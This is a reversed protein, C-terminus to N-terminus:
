LDEQGPIPFKKIFDVVETQMSDIKTKFSLETNLKKLFDDYSAKSDLSEQIEVTLQVGKDILDCVKEFDQTTFGRSTLAPSGIRLGSPYQHFNEKSQSSSIEGPCTFKNCSIHVTALVKEVRKGDTGKSRLDILVLHTDTGGTVITYGRKSMGAALTRANRLVQQQYEIFQPTNAEALAVAVGAITHNHPGSQLGPFVAENIQHELDYTENTHNYKVGKRYFILGSRPGRLSKHTTTTVIDCYQFPSPIVGAAVLGGIHAIDGMLLAGNEDAVERMQKYDILRSYCCVGAIILKPKFLTANKTLQEYDILGTSPNVKYPMTEFFKSTASIKKHSTMFGHTFHGGDAFDLAMIRDHPKLVGTFVAFNAPSGSYTQVNVGWENAKLNFANLARTQCIKELMDVNETGFCLREGPYGDSYKNNLCSGLAQLAAASTYNESAILELVHQQRKKENKIIQYIEADQQSLPRNQLSIHSYSLSEKTSNCNFMESCM